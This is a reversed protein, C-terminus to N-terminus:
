ASLPFARVPTYAGEGSQSGRLLYLMDVRESHDYGQPLSNWASEFQGPSIKAIILRSATTPHVGLGKLRGYSRLHAMVNKRLQEIPQKDVVAVHITRKDPYHGFGQFQLDFPPQGRVGQAIGDCLDREHAQPVYAFLLTLHALSRENRFPGIREAIRKKM